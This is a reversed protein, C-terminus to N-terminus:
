PHESVGLDAALRVFWRRQYSPLDSRLASETGQVVFDRTWVGAKVLGPVVITRLPDDGAGEDTQALSAGKVGPTSFLRGFIENTVKPRELLWALLPKGPRSAWGSILMLVAGDHRPVEVLGREVWEYMVARGRNRDWNKPNAVFDASWQEVVVPLDDPFLAPYVWEALARADPIPWVKAAQAATKSGLLVITAADWHSVALRGEWADVFQQSGGPYDERLERLWSTVTSGSSASLIAKAQAALPKCAARRASPDASALQTALERPRGAALLERVSGTTVM